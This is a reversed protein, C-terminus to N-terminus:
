LDYNQNFYVGEYFNELIKNNGSTLNNGSENSILSCSNVLIGILNIYTIYIQLLQKNSIQKVFIM